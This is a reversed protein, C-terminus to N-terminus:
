KLSCFDWRQIRGQLTAELNEPMFFATTEDVLYDVTVGLSFGISNVKVLESIFLVRLLARLM